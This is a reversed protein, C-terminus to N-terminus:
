HSPRAVDAPVPGSRDAVMAKAHQNPNDRGSAGLGGPRLRRKRGSANSLLRRASRAAPGRGSWHGPEALGPFAHDVHAASGSPEVADSARVELECFLACSSAFDAVSERSVEGSSRGLRYSTVSQRWVQWIRSV